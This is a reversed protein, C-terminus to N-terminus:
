LNWYPSCISMKSRIYDMYSYRSLSINLFSPLLLYLRCIRILLYIVLINGPTWIDMSIRSEMSSSGLWKNNDGFWVWHTYTKWIKLRRFSLSFDVVEVNGASEWLRPTELSSSLNAHHTSPSSSLDKQALFSILDWKFRSGRVNGWERLYASSLRTM